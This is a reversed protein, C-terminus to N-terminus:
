PHRRCPVQPFIRPIESFYFRIKSPSKLAGTPASWLEQGFANTVEFDAFRFSSPWRSSWRLENLLRQIVLVKKAVLCVMPHGLSVGSIVEPVLQVKYDCPFGHQVKNADM